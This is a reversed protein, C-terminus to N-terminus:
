SLLEVVAICKKLPCKDPPTKSNYGTMENEEVENEPFNCSYGYENDNNCFTCDNCNTVNINMTKIKLASRV